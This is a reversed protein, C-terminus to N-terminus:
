REAKSLLTVTEVQQENIRVFLAGSEGDYTVPFTFHITKILHKDDRKEPYLDIFSVMAFTNILALAKETQSQEQQVPATQQTNEAPTKTAADKSGCGTLISGIMALALTLSLIKKM